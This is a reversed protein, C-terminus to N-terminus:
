FDLPLLIFAKKGDFVENRKMIRFGLASIFYFVTLAKNEIRVEVRWVTGDQISDVEKSEPEGYREKADKLALEKAGSKDTVRLTERKEMVVGGERKSSLSPMTKAFSRVIVVVM